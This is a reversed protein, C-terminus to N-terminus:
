ALKQPLFIINDLPIGFLDSLRQAQPVSPHTLGREWSSVTSKDVNMALAVDTQRLNANVRCAKLSIKLREAM